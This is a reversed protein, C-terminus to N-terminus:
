IGNVHFTSINLNFHNSGVNISPLNVLLHVYITSSLHIHFTSLLVGEWWMEMGYMKFIQKRDLGLERTIGVEKQWLTWQSRYMLKKHLAEPKYIDNYQVETM